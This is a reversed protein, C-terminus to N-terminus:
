RPTRLLEKPFEFSLLRRAKRMSVWSYGSHEASLRIRSGPPISCKYVIFMLNDKGGNIRFNAKAAGFPGLIRIRSIGLEERVERALTQEITHNKIKGGPLGWYPKFRHTKKHPSKLLVLAENRLNIILAKVGIYFKQDEM